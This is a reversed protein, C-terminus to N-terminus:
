PNKEKSLPITANQDKEGTSLDPVPSTIQLRPEKGATERSGFISIGEASRRAIALSVVGNTDGRIFALLAPSSFRVTKTGHLTFSGLPEVKSWALMNDAVSFLDARGPSLLPSETFREANSSELIGYVDFTYPKDASLPELTLVVSGADRFTKSDFRLLGVRDTYRLGDANKIFLRGNHVAAFQSTKTANPVTREVYLDATPTLSVVRDDVRSTALDGTRSDFRLRDHVTLSLSKPLGSTCSVQVRGELVALQSVGRDDVEVAFRTGLDMVAIGPAGITFGHAKAPCYATLRGSKLFGRSESNLGFECPGTLTVQAGSFFELTASGSNLRLTGGPLQSGISTPVDSDGWAAHDTNVLTAIAPGPRPSSARGSFSTLVSMLGVFAVVIAAAAAYRLLVRRADFSAASDPASHRAEWAITAHVQALACYRDLWADQRLASELERLDDPGLVGDLMAACLDDFRNVDAFSTM